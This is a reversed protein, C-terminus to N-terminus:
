VKYFNSLSVYTESDKCTVSNLYSTENESILGMWFSLPPKIVILTVEYSFPNAITSLVVGPM